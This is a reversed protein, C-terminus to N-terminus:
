AGTRYTTSLVNALTDVWFAGGILGFVVESVGIRANVLQANAVKSWYINLNGQVHLLLGAVVSISIVTLFAIAVATQQTMDGGDGFGGALRFSVGDLVGSVMVLVVAWKASITSVLGADRMLDRFTRMHAHARFLNYVPVTLTLAHWIPFAETRTHDRYQKWTLYFWYFLYLGNTLVSMLLVRRFSIAYPLTGSAVGAVPYAAGVVAGGQLGSGCAGCYNDSPYVRTDCSPCFPM